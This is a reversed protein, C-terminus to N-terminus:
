EIRITAQDLLMKLASVIARRTRGAAPNALKIPDSESESRPPIASPKVLPTFRVVVNFFCCPRGVLECLIFLSVAGEVLRFVLVILERVDGLLASMSFSRKLARGTALCELM